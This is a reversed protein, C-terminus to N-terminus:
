KPRTARLPTDTNAGRTPLSGGVPCTAGTPCKRLLIDDLYAGEAANTSADSYFRFAIWVNPQGLLNGLTYVNSLDMVRDVWGGTPNSYYGYFYNGDTSAYYSLRDPYGPTNLWLKFRLEAATTNM